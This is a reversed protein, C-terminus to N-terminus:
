EVKYRIEFCSPPINTSRDPSKQDDMFNSMADRANEVYDPRQWQSWNSAISTQSIPLRFVQSIGKRGGEPSIIVAYLHESYVTSLVVTEQFINTTGEEAKAASRLPNAQATREGVFFFTAQEFESTKSARIEIAVKKDSAFTTSALSLVFLTSLLVEIKMPHNEVLRPEFELCAWKTLM